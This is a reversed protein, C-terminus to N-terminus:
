QFLAHFLLFNLGLGLSMLWLLVQYQAVLFLNLDNWNLKILIKEASLKLFRIFILISHKVTNFTLEIIIVTRMYVVSSSDRDNNVFRMMVVFNQICVVM